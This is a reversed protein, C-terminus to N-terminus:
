KGQFNRIGCLLNVHLVWVRMLFSLSHNKLLFLGYDVPREANTIGGYMSCASTRITINVIDSLYTYFVIDEFLNAM